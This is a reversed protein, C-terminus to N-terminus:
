KSITVALTNVGLTIKSTDQPGGGCLTFTNNGPILGDSPLIVWQWAASDFSRKDNSLQSIANAGLDLRCPGGNIMLGANFNVATDRLFDTSFIVTVPTPNPPQTISVSEGWSFCCKGTFIQSINVRLVQKTPVAYAATAVAIMFCIIAVPLTRSTISKSLTM